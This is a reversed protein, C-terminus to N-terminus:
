RTIEFIFHFTGNRICLNKILAIYKKPFLLSHKSFSFLIVQWNICRARHNERAATHYPQRKNPPLNMWIKAIQKIRDDFIPYEIKMKFQGNQKSKKFFSLKNVIKKGLDFHDM